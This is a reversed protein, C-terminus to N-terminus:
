AVPDETETFRISAIRELLIEIRASGLGGAEFMFELAKRYSATLPHTPGLYQVGSCLLVCANELKKKSWNSEIVPRGDVDELVYRVEEKAKPMDTGARLVRLLRAGASRTSPHQDGFMDQYIKLSESYRAIAADRDGNEKLAFALDTSYRATSIHLRGDRLVTERVADEVMAIAEARHEVYGSLALALNSKYRVLASAQSGKRHTQVAWWNLQRTRAVEEYPRNREYQLTAYADTARLIDPHHNPNSVWRERLSHFEKKAKLLAKRARSHRGDNNLLLEALQVRLALDGPHHTIKDGVLWSRLNDFASHVDEDSVEEDNNVALTYACYKAQPNTEMKHFFLRAESIAEERNLAVGVDSLVIALRMRCDTTTPHEPGLVDVATQLASRHAHISEDFHKFDAPGFGSRDCLVKTIKSHVAANLRAADVRHAPSDDFLEGAGAAAGVILQRAEDLESLDEFTAGLHLLVFALWYRLKFVVEVQGPYQSECYKSLARLKSISEHLSAPRSVSWLLSVAMQQVTPKSSFDHAISLVERQMQAPAELAERDHLCLSGALDAMFGLSVLHVDGFDAQKLDQVRATLELAEEHQDLRSLAMARDTLLALTEEDTEAFTGCELLDMQITLAEQVQPITGLSLISAHKKAAAWVRPSRSRRTNFRERAQPKRTKGAGTQQARYAIKLLSGSVGAAEGRNGNADREGNDSENDSSDEDHIDGEGGDNGSTRDSRKAKTSAFYKENLLLCQWSIEAAKSIKNREVLADAFGDLASLARRIVTSCDDCDEWWDDDCSQLTKVVWSEWGEDLRGVVVLWKLVRTRWRLMNKWRNHSPTTKKRWFRRKPEPDHTIGPIAKVVEIADGFKAQSTLARALMYRTEYDNGSLQQFGRRWWPLSQLGARREGAGRFADEADKYMYHELCLGGLAMQLVAASSICVNAKMKGDIEEKYRSITTPLTKLYFKSEQLGLIYINSSEQLSSKLTDVIPSYRDEWFDAEMCLDDVHTKGSAAIWYEYTHFPQDSKGFTARCCLALQKAAKVRCTECKGRAKKILGKVV